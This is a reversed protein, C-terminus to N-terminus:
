KLYGFGLPGTSADREPAAPMTLERSQSLPSLIRERMM